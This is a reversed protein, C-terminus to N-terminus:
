RFAASLLEKALLKQCRNQLAEFIIFGSKAINKRENEQFFEVRLPLIIITQVSVIGPSVNILSIIPAM